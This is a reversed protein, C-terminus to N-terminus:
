SCGSITKVSDISVGIYAKGSIVWTPYGKVGDRDCKEKEKSCDVSELLSFSDRFYTIQSGCRPCDQIYYLIVKANNMCEVLDDKETDCRRCVGGCDIRDEGQNLLGDVCSEEEFPLSADDSRGTSVKGIWPAEKMIEKEFVELAQAGVIMREGIFFTPTSEVGQIKGMEFDDKVKQFTEGGDLCTNFEKQKLGIVRAYDKFYTDNLKDQNEFLMDHYTWFKGQKRACEAAQAAKEAHPHIASLPFHRYVLEIQDGYSAKLKTIIPLAYKCYPCQFDSYETVVLKNEAADNELPKDEGPMLVSKARLTSTASMVTSTAKEDVVREEMCGSSYVIGALLLIM